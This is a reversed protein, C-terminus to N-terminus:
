GLIIEPAAFVARAVAGIAIRSVVFALSGLEIVVIVIAREGIDAIGGANAFGFGLTHAYDNGIEVAVAPRVDGDGVVGPRIKQEDVFVVACKLVDRKDGADGGAFVAPVFGAHADVGGVCEAAARLIDVDGM